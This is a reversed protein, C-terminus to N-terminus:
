FSVKIEEELEASKYLAELLKMRSIGEDISSHVHSPDTISSVFHRLENEYSKKYLNKTNSAFAPTMDIKNEGILKYAKLPNLHATGHEGYVSLKLDDKESLISWSVEFSIVKNGDFRLMGLASDEVDKTRHFFSEVSVTKCKPYSMLWLSLDLLLLGLDIIVGGGAKNKNLFWDESTSQKRLWSTRVYFVEGLEKSNLLSKLLMTDPRFRLNMGIMVFKGNAEAAKRIELAEEYNRAVPKEVLVHKGANLAAISIEHHLNTPTAIIVADCDDKELLEKYDTYRNKIHFKDAIANLRSKKIESVSSIKVGKFKSLTPLHVLQAIGGLGIIGIKIENKM